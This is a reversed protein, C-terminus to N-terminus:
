PTGENPRLQKLPTPHPPLDNLTRHRTTKAPLLTGNLGHQLLQKKDMPRGNDWREVRITPDMYDVLHCPVLTCGLRDLAHYRHHGDLIVNTAEDVVVPQNVTKDNRIQESLQEVREHDIQEHPRLRHIPILSIRPAPTTM